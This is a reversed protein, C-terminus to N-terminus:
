EVEKNKLLGRRYWLLGIVAGAVIILAANIGAFAVAITGVLIIFFDMKQKVTSKWFRIGADILIAVVVPRVGMFFDDLWELSSGKILLWAITIIIVFSPLMTGLAASLAGPFKKQRYGVFIATNIAFAGPLSSAVALLEVFEKDNMWHKDDVVARQILPIMVLGGGFTFLGIKFFITFLNLITAPKTTSAIQDDTTNNVKQTIENTEKDVM